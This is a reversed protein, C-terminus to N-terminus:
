TCLKPIFKFVRCNLLTIFIKPWFFVILLRSTYVVKTRSSCVFVTFLRYNWSLADIHLVEVSAM